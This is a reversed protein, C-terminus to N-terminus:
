LFSIVGGLWDQIDASADFGMLGKELPKSFKCVLAKECILAQIHANSTFISKTTFVESWVITAWSATVVSEIPRWHAICGLLDMFFQELWSVKYNYRM